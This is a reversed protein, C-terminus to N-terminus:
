MRQGSRVVLRDFQHASERLGQSGLTEIPGSAHARGREGAAVLRNRRAKPHTLVDRQQRLVADLKDLAAGTESRVRRFAL